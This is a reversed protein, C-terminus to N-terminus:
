ESVRSNSSSLHLLFRTWRCVKHLLDVEDTHSKPPPNGDTSADERPEIIVLHTHPSAKQCIKLHTHTSYIFLDIKPNPVMNYLLVLLCPRLLRLETGHQHTRVRTKGEQPRRPENTTFFTRVQRMLTNQQRMQSIPGWCLCVPLTSRPINLSFHGWYNEDVM